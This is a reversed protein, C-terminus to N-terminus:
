FVIWDDRNIFSFTFDVNDTHRIDLTKEDFTYIMITQKKNDWYWYGKWEPMKARYGYKMYAYAKSFKM